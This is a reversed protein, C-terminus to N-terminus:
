RPIASPAAARCSAPLPPYAGTLPSIPRYRPLGAALPTPWHSRAPQGIASCMSPSGPSGVSRAICRRLARRPSPYRSHDIDGRPWDPPLSAASRFGGAPSNRRRPPDAPGAHGAPQHAARGGAAEEANRGGRRSGSRRRADAGDAVEAGDAQEAERTRQAHGSNM